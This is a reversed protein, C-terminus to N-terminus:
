HPKAMGQGPGFLRWGGRGAAKAQYMAMDAHRILEDATATGHSPRLAVGISPTVMITSDPASVEVSLSSQLKRVVREVDPETAVDHLLVVFEDGGFRAVLDSTRLTDKLRCAVTQLLEDGAQHGLRDNVQKFRDLDIFLLAFGADSRRSSALKHQLRELFTLRNPLGTLADHHALHQIREQAARRDRIDRVIVMRLNEGNRSMSRVILEV